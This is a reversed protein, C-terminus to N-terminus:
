SMEQACDECAFLANWDFLFSCIFFRKFIASSESMNMSSLVSLQYIFLLDNQDYFTVACFFLCESRNM